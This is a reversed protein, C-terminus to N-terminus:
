LIIDIGLLKTRDAEFQSQLALTATSTVSLGKSFCHVSLVVHLSSSYSCRVMPISLKM